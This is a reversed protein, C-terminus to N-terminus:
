WSLAVLGGVDVVALVLTLTFATESRRGAFVLVAATALVGVAVLVAGVATSRGLAGIGLVIAAGGLAGALLLLSRRQGLRHPLGRVGTAADQALDPLVNAVHAGLGLLAGTLPAWWPPAAAGAAGSRALYPAAPLAAFGVLYAAGSLVTSKLGLNYAWGAAVLVLATLGPRWGLLLSLTVTAVLAAGAAASLVPLPVSGTAAPKDGRAAAADRGADIRDNSWGISLQGTFVAATLLLVRGAPLGVAVGLLAGVLTVAATPAPHCAGALGAAVRGARHQGM